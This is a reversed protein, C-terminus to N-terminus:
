ESCENSDISNFHNDLYTATVDGIALGIGVAPGTGYSFQEGVDSGSTAVVEASNLNVMVVCVQAIYRYGFAPLQFYAVSM